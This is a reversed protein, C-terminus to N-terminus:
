RISGYGSMVAKRPPILRLAYSPDDPGHCFRFGEEYCERREWAM